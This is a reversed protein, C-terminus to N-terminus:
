RYPHKPVIVPELLTFCMKYYWDDHSQNHESHNLKSKDPILVSRFHLDDEDFFYDIVALYFAAKAPSIKSWKLEMNPSLKHAIKIERLRTSISKTQDAKVWIAGLVMINHGDKELHCSEDCYVNFRESM